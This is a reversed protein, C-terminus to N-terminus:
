EWNNIGDARGDCDAAWLDPGNRNRMGPFRYHIISRPAPEGPWVPNIVSGDDVLMDPTFEFYSIRKPSSSRLCRVLGASGRGDGAPFVGYDFEYTKVAANLSDILRQAARQRAICHTGPGTLCPFFVWALVTLVLVVGTWKLIIGSFGRRPAGDM